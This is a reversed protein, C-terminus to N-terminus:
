RKVWAPSGQVRDYIRGCSDCQWVTGVGVTWYLPPFCLCFPKGDPLPVRKLIAM